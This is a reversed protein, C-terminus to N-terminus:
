IEYSETNALTILFFISAREGEAMASGSHTTRAAVGSPESGIAVVFRTADYASSIVSM